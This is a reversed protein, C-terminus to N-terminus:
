RNPEPPLTELLHTVLATLATLASTRDRADIRRLPLAPGLALAERLEADDVGVPRDDFENLAVVFPVGARELLDLFFFSEAIRAADVLVVGGLAGSVQQQIAAQFREQGPTGFLYLVIDGLTLRGFDLAVTTTTKAVLTHLTDIREGARTLQEETFVPQLESVTHVFTTKGVAFAGLVVVKAATVTPQGQWADDSANFPM